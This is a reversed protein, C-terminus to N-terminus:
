DTVCHRSLTYIITLTTFCVMVLRATPVYQCCSLCRLMSAHERLLQWSVAILIIYKEPHKYDRTGTCTAKNIWCVVRPAM